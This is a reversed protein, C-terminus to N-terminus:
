GLGLPRFKRQVAVGYSEYDFDDFDVGLEAPAAGGPGIPGASFAGVVARYANQGMHVLEITRSYTWQGEMGTSDGFPRNGRVAHEALAATAIGLADPETECGYQTDNNLTQLRVVQHKWSENRGVVGVLVIELYAQEPSTEGHQQLAPTDYAYRAANGIGPHSAIDGLLNLNYDFGRGEVMVREPIVTPILCTNKVGQTPDVPNPGYYTELFTRLLRIDIKKPEFQDTIAVGWVGQYYDKGFIPIRSFLLREVIERIPDLQERAGFKSTNFFRVLDPTTLFPCLAHAVVPSSLRSFPYSM